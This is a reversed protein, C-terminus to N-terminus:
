LKLAHTMKSAYMCEYCENMYVNTVSICVYWWSLPSITHTLYQKHVCRVCVAYMCVYWWRVPALTRSGLTFWQTYAHTYVNHTWLFCQRIISCTKNVKIRKNEHKQENTITKCTCAIQTHKEHIHGGLPLSSEHARLLGETCRADTFTVMYIDKKQKNTHHIHM